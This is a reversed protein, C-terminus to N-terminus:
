ILVPLTFFLFLPGSVACSQTQQPPVYRNQQLQEQPNRIQWAQMSSFRQPIVQLWM